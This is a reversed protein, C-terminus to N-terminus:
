MSLKPQSNPLWNEDLIQETPWPCAPPFSQRSRESQEAASAVADPYIEGVIDALRARLTPNKRLHRRLQRRQESVTLRWGRQAQTEDPLYTLKLLHALLVELRNELETQESRGMAEIEEILNPLDLEELAESQLLFAQQQTWAYFDTNYLPVTAQM